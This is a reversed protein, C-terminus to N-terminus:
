KITVLLRVPVSKTKSVESAALKSAQCLNTQCFQEILYVPSTSDFMILDDNSLGNISWRFCVTSLICVFNILSTLLLEKTTELELSHVENVLANLATSMYM